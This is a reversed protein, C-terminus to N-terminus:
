PAMLSCKKSTEYTRRYVKIINYEFADYNMKNIIRNGGCYKSSKQSCIKSMNTKIDGSGVSIDSM